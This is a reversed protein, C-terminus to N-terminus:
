RAARLHWLVILCAAGTVSFAAWAIPRWHPRRTALRLCVLGTGLGLLGIAEITAGQWARYGAM